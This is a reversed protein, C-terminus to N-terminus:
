SDTDYYSYSFYKKNVSNNILYNNYETICEDVFEKLVNIGYM